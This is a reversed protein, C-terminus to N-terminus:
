RRLSAIRRAGLLAECFADVQSEDVRSMIQDLENLIKHATEYTTM